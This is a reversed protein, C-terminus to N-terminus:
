RSVTAHFDSLHEPKLAHAWIIKYQWPFHRLVVKPSNDAIGHCNIHQFAYEGSCKGSCSEGTRQMIAPSRAHEWLTALATFAASNGLGRRQAIANHIYIYIYQFTSPVMLGGNLM